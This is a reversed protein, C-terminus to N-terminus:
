GIPIDDDITITKDEQTNDDTSTNNNWYSQEGKVKGWASALVFGSLATITAAFEYWNTNIAYDTFIEITQISLYWVVILRTIRIGEIMVYSKSSTGSNRKIVERDFKTKEKLYNRFFM